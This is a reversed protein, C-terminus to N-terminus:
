NFDTSKFHNKPMGTSFIPDMFFQVMGSYDFKIVVEGQISVRSYGQKILIHIRELKFRM